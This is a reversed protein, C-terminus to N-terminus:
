LVRRSRGITALTRTSEVEDRSISSSSSSSAVIYRHIAGSILDNEMKHKTERVSPEHASNSIYDGLNQV